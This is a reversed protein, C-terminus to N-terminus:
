AARPQHRLCEPRRDHDPRRRRPPDDRRHLLRQGPRLARRPPRPRLPRPRPRGLTPLRAADAPPYFGNGTALVLDAELGVIKEVDVGTYSAVDPLAAAEARFDDFATVGVRAAGARRGRPGGSTPRPDGGRARPPVPWRSAPRLIRPGSHLPAGM